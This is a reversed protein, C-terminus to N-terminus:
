KNTILTGGCNFEYDTGFEQSEYGLAVMHPYEGLEVETGGYIHFDLYPGRNSLLRQCEMNARTGIPKKTTSQQNFCEQFTEPDLFTADCNLETNDETTSPTQIDGCCVIPVRSEFSCRKLLNPRIKNVRAWECKTIDECTGPQGDHRTCADGEIFFFLHM